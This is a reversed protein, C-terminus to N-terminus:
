PEGRTEIGASAEAVRALRDLEERGGIAERAALDRLTERLLVLGAAADLLLDEILRALLGLREAHGTGVM